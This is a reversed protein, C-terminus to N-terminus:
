LAPTEVGRATASKEVVLADNILQTLHYVAVGPLPRAPPADALSFLLVRRRSHALELLAESLADYTIATVVVLTASRPLTPAKRLLLTEVPQSAYPTVAALLELISMLQSRSRGPRLRIDQDSGPLYGNAMVGVPMRAETALYALTGSVSVALEHQAEVIGEWHRELTAVNLIIQIQPEESPEYIRSLLEQHKASARWHVRRLGDDPQWERIGAHRLPDEFILQDSSQEGFPDKAPMGLEAATYLRPYVILRHEQELRARQTFLGFGDGTALTAPGYTAYGRRSCPITFTRELTEFTGLTWFSALEGQNTVRNVEVKAGQLDLHSPVTDTIRLWNLPLLKRNSVRLTLQVEEGLFARTENNVDRLGDADRFIREYSLGHLSLRFWLWAAALTLMLIGAAALLLRSEFLVSGAASLLIMLFWPTLNANQRGLVVMGSPGGAKTGSGSVPVRRTRPGTQVKNRELRSV